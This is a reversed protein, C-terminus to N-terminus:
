SRVGNLFVDVIHEARPPSANLMPHSMALALSRLIGAADGPPIRLRGPESALLSVLAQSTPMPRHDGHPKGLQSVLQWIGVTRQQILETARILRQEFPVAADIADISREFPEQDIAHELVAAILQDKDAFVNFVTGESVHAADAMQRTTVNHGHEILLPLVAEIIVTRREDAPLPAARRKSQDSTSVDSM